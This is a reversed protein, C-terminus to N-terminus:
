AAESEFEEFDPNWKQIFGKEDIDMVVYDGYGNGKPCMMSPVYGDISKIENKEADLLTYTGADCVKYHVDAKVGETWNVIKGTELDILPEWQEGNRCPIKGEADEQDGVKADEWYRVQCSAQLYKVDFEKEVTLKIIM